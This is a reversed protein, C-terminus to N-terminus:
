RAAQCVTERGGRRRECHLVKDLGVPCYLFCVAQNTAAEMELIGLRGITAGYLAILVTGAPVVKASSLALADATIFEDVTSVTGDNLEGSKVWPITGRYYAAINRAPTGGSGTNCVDGIRCGVWGSPMRYQENDIM